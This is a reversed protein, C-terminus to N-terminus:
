ETLEGVRNRVTADVVDATKTTEKYYSALHKELEKRNAPITLNRASKALLM